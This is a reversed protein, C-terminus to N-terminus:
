AKPLNALQKSLWDSTSQMKTVALDLATYQKRYRQEIDVLRRNFRDTQQSIRKAEQNMGDIRSAVQGTSSLMDGVVSDLQYGLGRSFNITGRDAGDPSSAAGGLVSFKLGNDLTVQQGVGTKISNGVKVKVDLGPTAVTQATGLLSGTLSLTADAGYRANTIQVKNDTGISVNVKAGINQLTSDSNIRTQLEAALQAPTYSGVTLTISASTGNVNIGFTNNNGDVVFPGGAPTLADSSLTAQTANNIVSVALDDLSTTNKDFTDIRILSDSARSNSAFLSIVGQPDKSMAANFKTTDVSLVGNKDFSVGVRSLSNYDGGTGSIMQTMAKRLSNQMSRVAVDGNLLGSNQTKPDYSTLDGLMKSLDNYAKVFDQVNKTIAGTNQSVSMNVASTTIKNLTLTVGDVADSVTNTSKSIAIGDIKLNANQAAQTQALNSAGGTAANFALMSLGSTDSNDGDSDTTTIKLANSEGTDTSVMALKYGSGDNVISATVGVGAKNIADRLGTLTNNSADITITKSVKDPNATFSTTTGSTTYKGFEISITGTGVISTPATLAKSALKQNQALQSVEVSFNSKAATKSASIGVFDSASSTASITTFNDANALKQASGQFTALAGKITGYASIRQKIGVNRVDFKQLPQKEIAMLQSVISNVDITGM